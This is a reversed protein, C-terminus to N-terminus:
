NPHRYFYPQGKWNNESAYSLFANEAEEASFENQHFHNFLWYVSTALEKNQVLALHLLWLSADDELYIDKQNLFEGFETISGNDIVKTATLWYRIAAVMNKGVGL